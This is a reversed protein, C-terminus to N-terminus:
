SRRRRRKMWKALEGWVKLISKLPSKSNKERAVREKRSFPHKTEPEDEEDGGESERMRKCGVGSFSEKDQDFEDETETESDLGQTQTQSHLADCSLLRQQVVAVVRSLQLEVDRLTDM